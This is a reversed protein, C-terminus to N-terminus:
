DSHRHWRVRPYDGVYFYLPTGKIPTGEYIDIARRLMFQTVDSVPSPLGDRIRYFGVDELEKGSNPNGAAHEADALFFRAHFRIASSAPTIARGILRLADVAPALAAADFASAIERTKDLASVIDDVRASRELRAPAKGRPRGILLGTEEFTERIAARVLALPQTTTDPPVAAGEGPWARFDSRQLGGGPFVYRGPMFRAGGGRRGMLVELGSPGRRVVVLSAAARPMRAVNKIEM